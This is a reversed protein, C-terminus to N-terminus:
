HECELHYTNRHHSTHEVEVEEYREKSGILPLFIKLNLDMSVNRSYVYFSFVITKIRNNQQPEDEEEEGGGRERLHVDPRWAARPGISFREDM